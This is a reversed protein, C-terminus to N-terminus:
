LSLSKWVTAAVLTDSYEGTSRQKLGEDAGTLVLLGDANFWENAYLDVVAM